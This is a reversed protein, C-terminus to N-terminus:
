YEGWENVKGIHSTGSGTIWGLYNKSIVNITLMYDCINFETHIPHETAELGWFALKVLIPPIRGQKGILIIKPATILLQYILTFILNPPFRVNWTSLHMTYRNSKYPLHWIRHVSIAWKWYWSAYPYYFGIHLIQVCDHKGCVSSCVSM